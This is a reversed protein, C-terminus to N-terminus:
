DGAVVVPQTWITAAPISTVDVPIEDVLQGDFYLGLSDWSTARGFPGWSGTGRAEGNTVAWDRVQCRQYGPATVETGELRLGVDLSHSHFFSRVFLEALTM